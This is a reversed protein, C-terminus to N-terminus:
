YPKVKPQPGVPLKVAAQKEKQSMCKSAPQGTGYVQTRDPRAVRKPIESM